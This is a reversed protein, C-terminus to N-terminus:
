QKSKDSNCIRDSSCLVLNFLVFLLWNKLSFLRLIIILCFSVCIRFVLVLGFVIINLFVFMHFLCHRVLYFMIFYSVIVFVSWDKLDISEARGHRALRAPVLGHHRWVCDSICIPCDVGFMREWEWFLWEFWGLRWELGGLCLRWDKTGLEMGWDEGVSLCIFRDLASMNLWGLELWLWVNLGWVCFLYTTLGHRGFVSDFCTRVRPSIRGISVLGRVEVALFGISIDNNNM